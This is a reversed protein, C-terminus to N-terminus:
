KRKPVPSIRGSPVNAKEEAIVGIIKPQLEM